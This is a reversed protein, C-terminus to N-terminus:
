TPTAAKTISSATTVAAVDQKADRAHKAVHGMPRKATTGTTSATQAMTATGQQSAHSINALATQM